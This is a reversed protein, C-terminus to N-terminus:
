SDFRRPNSDQCDLSVHCATLSIFVFIHICCEPNLGPIYQLVGGTAMASRVATMQGGKATLGAAHPHSIAQYVTQM